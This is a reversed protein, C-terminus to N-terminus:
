RARNYTRCRFKKVIVTVPNSRAAQEIKYAVHHFGNQVVGLDNGNNIGVGIKGGKILRTSNGKMRSNVAEKIKLMDCVANHEKIFLAIDLKKKEFNKSVVIRESFFDPGSSGSSRVWNEALMAPVPRATPSDTIQLSTQLLTGRTGDMLLNRHNCDDNQDGIRRMIAVSLYATSRHLQSTATM